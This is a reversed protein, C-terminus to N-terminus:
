DLKSYHKLIRVFHAGRLVCDVGNEEKVVERSRESTESLLVSCLYSM